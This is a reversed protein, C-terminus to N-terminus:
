PIINGFFFFSGLDLLGKITQIKFSGKLRWIQVLLFHAESAIYGELLFLSVLVWRMPEHTTM